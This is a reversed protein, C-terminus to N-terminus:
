SLGPSLRRRESFSPGHSEPGQDARRDERPCYASGLIEVVATEHRAFQSDYGIASELGTDVDTMYNSKLRGLIGSFQNFM